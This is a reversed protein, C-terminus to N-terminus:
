FDLFPLHPHKQLHLNNWTWGPPVRKPDLPLDGLVTELSLALKDAIGTAVTFDFSIKKDTVTMENHIHGGLFEQEGHERLFRGIRSRVEAVFVEYPHTNGARARQELRELAPESLIQRLQQYCPLSLYCDNFSESLPKM